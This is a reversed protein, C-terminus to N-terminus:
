RRQKAETPNHVELGSMRAFLNLIDMMLVVGSLKGAASVVQGTAAATAVIPYGPPSSVHPTFQGDTYPKPSRLVSSSSTTSSLAPSHKTYGL